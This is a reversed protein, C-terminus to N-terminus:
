NIKITFTLDVVHFISINMILQFFDLTLCENLDELFFLLKQSLNFM